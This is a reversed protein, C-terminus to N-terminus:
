SYKRLVYVVVHGTLFCKMTGYMMSIYTHRLREECYDNIKWKYNCRTGKEDFPNVPHVM